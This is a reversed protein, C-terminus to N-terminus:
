PCPHPYTWSDAANTHELVWLRGIDTASRLGALRLAHEELEARYGDGASSVWAAGRAARLRASADALGDIMARLEVAAAHSRTAM